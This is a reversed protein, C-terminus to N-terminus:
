NREEKLNEGFNGTVNNFMTPFMNLSEFHTCYGKIMNVRRERIEMLGKKCDRGSEHGRRWTHTHTHIKGNACYHQSSHDIHIATAISLKYTSSRSNQKGVKHEQSTVHM